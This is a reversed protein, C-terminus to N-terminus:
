CYDNKCLRRKIYSRAAEISKGRLSFDCAGEYQRYFDDAEFLGEGDQNTMREMVNEKEGEVDREYDGPEYINVLDFYFQEGDKHINRVTKRM